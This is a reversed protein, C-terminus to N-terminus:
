ITCAEKLENGVSISIFIGEKLPDLALIKEIATEDMGYHPYSSFGFATAVYELSACLHGIDMHLSRFTQPERYRFMAREFVATLVFIAKAPFHARLYAGMFVQGLVGIELEESLLELESNGVDFHYWGPKLGDIDIVLVYCESPHRAGLSPSTKLLLQEAGPWSTARKGTIGFVIGILDLLRERNLQETPVDRKIVNRLTADCQIESPPPVPIRELANEYHKYRNTDLESQSYQVMRKNAEESGNNQYDVFPYNELVLYYDASENWNFYAWDESIQRFYQHSKDDDSILLGKKLFGQFVKLAQTNSLSHRDRLFGLIQDETQPSFCFLLTELLLRNSIVFRKHQHLHDIIWKGNNM